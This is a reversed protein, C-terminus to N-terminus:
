TRRNPKSSMRVARSRCRVRPLGGCGLLLRVVMPWPAASPLGEVAQRLLRREAPPMLPSPGPNPLRLAVTICPEEAM